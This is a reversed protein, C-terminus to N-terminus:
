YWAITFVATFTQIEHCAPIKKVLQVFVAIGCPNSEHFVGRDSSRSMIHLQPNPSSRGSNNRTVNIDGAERSSVLFNM